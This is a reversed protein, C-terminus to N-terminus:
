LCPPLRLVPIALALTSLAALLYLASGAGAIFRRVPTLYEGEIERDLAQRCRNAMLLLLGANALAAIGLALNLWNFPGQEAAPPAIMCGLSLGGYLLNLGGFWMALGLALHLPHFPSLM